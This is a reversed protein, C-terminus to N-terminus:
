DAQIRWQNTNAVMGVRQVRDPYEMALTSLLHGMTHTSRCPSVGPLAHLALIVEFASGEWSRLGSPALVYDCFIRYLRDASLRAPTPTKAKVRRLRNRARGFPSSRVVRKIEDSARDTLGRLIYEIHEIRRSLTKNNAAVADISAMMQPGFAGTRRIAPLVESTVWKRFARAEEKRSRFILAYLGSESVLNMRHPVGARPNGDPNAVTIKEDEELSAVADRPNTIGLIRCVDAAVFWEEGNRLAVRLSQGDRGFERFDASHLAPAELPQDRLPCEERAGM